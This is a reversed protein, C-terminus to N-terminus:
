RRKIVKDIKAPPVVRSRASVMERARRAGWVMGTPITVARAPAGKKKHIRRLAFVSTNQYGHELDFGEVGSVAFFIDKVIDIQFDVWSLHKSEDAGISGPFGGEDAGDTTHERFSGTRNGEVM